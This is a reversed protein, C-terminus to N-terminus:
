RNLFPLWSQKTAHTDSTYGPTLGVNGKATYVPAAVQMRTCHLLVHKHM